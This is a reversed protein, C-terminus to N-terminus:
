SQDSAGSRAGRHMVRVHGARPEDAALLWSGTLGSGGNLYPDPAPRLGAIGPHALFGVPCDEATTCASSRASSGRHATHRGCGDVAVTRAHPEVVQSAASLAAADSLFAKLVAPALYLWSGVRTGRPMQRPV